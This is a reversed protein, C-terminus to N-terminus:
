GINRQGDEIEMWIRNLKQEIETGNENLQKEIEM